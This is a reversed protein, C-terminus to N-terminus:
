EILDFLQKLFQQEEEPMNARQMDFPVYPVGLSQFAGQVTMLEASVASAAMILCASGLLLPMLKKM